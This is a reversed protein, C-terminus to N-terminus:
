AKISKSWHKFPVGRNGNFKTPSMSKGDILKLDKRDGKGNSSRWQSQQAIVENRFQDIRENLRKFTSDTDNRLVDHAVATRGSQDLVTQLQMRIEEIANEIADFSSM